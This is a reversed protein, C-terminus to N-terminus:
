RNQRTSVSLTYNVQTRTNKHTPTNTLIHPRKLRDIRKAKKEFRDNDENSFNCVCKFWIKKYYSSSYKIRENRENHFKRKTQTGSKKIAVQDSELNYQISNSENYIYFVKSGYVCAVHEVNSLTCVKRRVASIDTRQSCTFTSNAGCLCVLTREHVDFPSVCNIPIQPSRKEENEIWMFSFWLQISQVVVAGLVATRIWTLILRVILSASHISACALENYCITEFFNSYENFPNKIRPEM